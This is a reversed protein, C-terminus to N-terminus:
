CTTDNTSETLDVIYDFSKTHNPRSMSLCLLLATLLGLCVSSESDPDLQLLFPINLRTCYRGRVVVWM